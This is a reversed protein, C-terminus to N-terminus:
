KVVIVVKPTEFFIEEHIVKKQRTNKGEILVRKRVNQVVSKQNNDFEMLWLVAGNPANIPM